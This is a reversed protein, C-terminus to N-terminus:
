CANSVLHCARTEESVGRGAALHCERESIALSCSHPSLRGSPLSDRPSGLRAPSCGSCFNSLLLADPFSTFLRFLLALPRPTLASFSIGPIRSTSGPRPPPPPARPSDLFSHRLQTAARAGGEATPASPPLRLPPIPNNTVHISRWTPPMPAASERPDRGSKASSLESQQSCRQLFHM